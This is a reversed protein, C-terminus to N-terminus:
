KWYKNSKTSNERLKKEKAPQRVGVRGKGGQGWAPPINGSFIGIHAYFKCTEVELNQAGLAGAAVAVLCHSGQLTLVRRWEFNAEHIVYIPNGLFLNNHMINRGKPILHKNEFCLTLHTKLKRMKLNKEGSTSAWAWDPEAGAMGGRGVCFTKWWIMCAWIKGHRGKRCLLNNTM